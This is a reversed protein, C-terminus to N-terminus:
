ALALQSMLQWAWPLALQVAESLSFHVPPHLACVAIKQLPLKTLADSASQQAFSKFFMTCTVTAPYEYELAPQSPPVQVTAAAAPPDAEAEQSTAGPTGAADPPTRPTM